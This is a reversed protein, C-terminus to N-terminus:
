GPCTVPTWCRPSWPTPRRTGCGRPDAGAGAGAVSGQPSWTWAARAQAPSVVGLAGLAGLAGGVMLANRRNLQEM